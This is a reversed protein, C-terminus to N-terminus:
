VTNGYLYAIPEEQQLIDQCNIDSFYDAKLIKGDLTMIRKICKWGQLPKNYIVISHIEDNYFTHSFFSIATENKKTKYWENITYSGDSNDIRETKIPKVEEAM